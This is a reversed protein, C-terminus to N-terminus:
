EGDDEEPDHQDSRGTVAKVTWEVADDWWESLVAAARKWWPLELWAIRAELVKIRRDDYFQLMEQVDDRTPNKNKFEKYRPHEKPKYREEPM